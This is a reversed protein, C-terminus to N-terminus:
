AFTIIVRGDAGAGGYGATSSVVFVGGKGVTVSLITGATLSSTITKSYGGAGGGGGVSTYSGGCM